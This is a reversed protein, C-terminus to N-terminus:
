SQTKFYAVVAEKFAMGLKMVLKYTSLIYDLTNLQSLTMWFVAEEEEGEEEECV